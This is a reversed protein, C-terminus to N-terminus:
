HIIGFVFYGFVFCLDYFSQLGIMFFAMESPHLATTIYTSPRSQIPDGPLCQGSQIIYETEKIKDIEIALQALFFHPCTLHMGENWYPLLVREWGGVEWRGGLPVDFPRGRRWRMVNEDRPPAATPALLSTLLTGLFKMVSSWWQFVLIEEFFNERRRM